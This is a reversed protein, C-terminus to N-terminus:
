ARVSRILNTLLPFPTGDSSLGVGFLKSFIRIVSVVVGSLGMRIFHPDVFKDSIARNGWSFLWQM